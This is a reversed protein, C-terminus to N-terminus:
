FEPLISLNGGQEPQADGASAKMYWNGHKDIKDISDFGGNEAQQIAEEISLVRGTHTKVQTINGNEDKQIAVIKEGIM